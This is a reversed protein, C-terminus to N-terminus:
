HFCDILIIESSSDQLTLKNFERRLKRIFVVKPVTKNVYSCTIVSESASTM